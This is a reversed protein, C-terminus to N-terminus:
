LRRSKRRLPKLVAIVLIAALLDLAVNRLTTVFWQRLEDLLSVAHAQGATRREDPPGAASESRSPM